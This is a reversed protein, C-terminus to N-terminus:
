DTPWPALGRGPTGDGIRPWGDEWAIRDLLVQRGAATDHGGSATAKWAHYVFFDGSATPVVSGHGPGVWHANNALIPAGRKQYPGLLSPARAVGTRYRADYVNGSYFLYYTGDHRVLWPAEIVGGEWSAPDNVLLEHRPSGAALSLGDAALEHAFIPTPRGQSNGDIKYILYHRGDRDRFYTADIVGLPDQVLPGGADTYPGLPSTAWAAGIALRNDGDAATFYAVYRDGVRHIEPAWNRFGNAAWSPRDTPLITQGSEDWLVLDASRRIGFRGGTCALYYTPALADGDVLVGPDPCDVGIVPNDYPPRPSGTAAVPPAAVLREAPIVEEAFADSRWALHAEATFDKEFYDLRVAVPGAPLALTVESRTPRRFVWDDLVPVPADGIWLRVGDDTTAVFTYTGAAPVDLTGSWRVSFHDRGVGAAPEGDGWAFDVTADVRELVPAGGHRRFYTARLGHEPPPAADPAADTAADAPPPAADGPPAAGPGSCAAIALLV